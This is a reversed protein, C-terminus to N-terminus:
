RPVQPSDKSIPKCMQTESALNLGHLQTKCAFFHNFIGIKHVVPPPPPPLDQVFLQLILNWPMLQLDNEPLPDLSKYGSISKYLGLLNTHTLLPFKRCIFM